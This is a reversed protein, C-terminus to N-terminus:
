QPQIPDGFNMAYSDWFLNLMVEDEGSPAPFELLSPTGLLDSLSTPSPEQVQAYPASTSLDVGSIPSLVATQAASPNNSSDTPGLSLIREVYPVKTRQQDQALKARYTAIADSFSSLIDHYQAAQPSLQGLRGLVRLSGEFADRAPLGTSEDSLLCFGLVLGAAFIWAKLICMNGLLTGSDAAESCMQAMYIAADICVHAMEAVKSDESSVYSRERAAAGHQPRRHLLPMTHQILFHRTTLIMGFYYTCAVHINGISAERFSPNSAERDRRPRQRLVPPLAQSWERLMQLFTEATKADMNSDQAAQHVISELVTAAEYTASLAVARHGTSEPNLDSAYIDDARLSLTSGPRGLISSCVLDLARISKGTRLRMDREEPSLHKYQGSVHLGLVVAAKSAVGIFMFATNRRCAGFMFFALLLFTRAMNTTPDQLMSEFALKRAKSFYRAACLREAEDQGRCQAGIAIMAYLAALDERQSGKIGELGNDRAQRSLHMLREIDLKTFLDLLGCTAELFCQVLTMKQDDDLDDKFGEVEGEPIDVELMRRSQQGETFNSPGAYRKLIKRLFQHFSLAATNGIFVKEGTSSYLMVPKQGVYPTSDRTDQSEDLVETVQQLAREKPPSLRSHASDSHHEYKRPSRLPHSVTIDSARRRSPQDSYQCSEAIGKRLCPSCPTRSDCRKKLHKCANCAKVSRRRDEPKVRPRPM